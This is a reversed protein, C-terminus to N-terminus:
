VRRWRVQSGRTFSAVRAIGVTRQPRDPAIGRQAAHRGGPAARRLPVGASVAGAGDARAARRGSRGLRTGRQAAPNAGCVRVNRRTDVVRHFPAAELVKASPPVHASRSPRPIRSTQRDWTRGSTGIREASRGRAPLRDFAAFASRGDGWAAAGRGARSDGLVRVDWSVFARHRRIM